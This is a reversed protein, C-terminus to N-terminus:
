SKSTQGTKMNHSLHFTGNMIWLGVDVCLACSISRDHAMATDPHSMKGEKNLLVFVTTALIEVIVYM